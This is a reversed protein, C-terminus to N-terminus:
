KELQGQIAEVVQSASLPFGGYFLVPRIKKKEVGTELTLLSSLQGDRNQEVVFNYEHQNLFTEISNAFPFGCVRQYDLNIGQEALAGIAERVALDCGGLTVVGYQAKDVMQMKPGPVFDAAAAHKKALRDLVEQYESPTETYGGFKNHGSGRTVYAGKAAVGPLTRPAVFNEDENSYRFYKPMEKLDAENLVRGRDPRYSDDWTLRPVVWDNMGIDLDSMMIVPTQFREALDFSKVAFEFCEAPNAPFLLIHKTDGHSAYACSLLDAQQTRTPMGTSPGVRQVDIVVAPIESYYALGLLENMLSIGPGATSTFARAGNWSAGIVMGIAALEDEAQIICYNNRETEPDRRYKECFEKFADMVSTAPTIPYWAAVTAGAYVCGLATATNGDILVKDGNADMPQLHFPLPCNFHEKAYDYGIKLAQLNSDRLAKKGAFREDLLAEVTHMDIELTAVLAGAYAVNKMLTRARADKFRENCMQAFPIPMFNVDDRYLSKDLPWSSDYLVYGGQRVEKIDRGYTQSNMAVMLDYNIARATHGEDNVRIEYWTPLGQINSPFLNKGSVPIGMRFIAQMLLGNASASGTGNVNALKIAFDNVSGSSNRQM